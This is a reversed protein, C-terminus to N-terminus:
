VVVGVVEAGRFMKLEGGDNAQAWNDAYKDWPRGDWWFVRYRGISQFMVLFRHV